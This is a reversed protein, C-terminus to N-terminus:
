VIKAEFQPRRRRLVFVCGLAASAATMPEPIPIGAASPGGLAAMQADSLSRDAFAIASPKPAPQRLYIASILLGWYM